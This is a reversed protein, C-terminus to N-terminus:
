PPTPAHSAPPPADKDGLEAFGTGRRHLRVESVNLIRRFRRRDLGRARRYAACFRRVDAPNILKQFSRFIQHFNRATVYDPVANAWMRANDLDLLVFTPAGATPEIVLLNASKLDHAGIGAAHLHALWRALATAFAARAPPTSAIRSAYLDLPVALSPTGTFLISETEGGNRSWAAALHPVVAAGRLALANALRFNRLADPTRLGSRRFTKVYFTGHPSQFRVVSSKGTTSVPFSSPADTWDLAETGFPADARCIWRTARGTSLPTTRCAERLARAETMTARVGDAMTGITFHKRIHSAAAEGMALRRAPDSILEGLRRTLTPIDACPALSGLEPSMIIERTGGADTAVVAVRASMAELVVNPLGEVGSTHMLIDAAPLLDRFDDRWGAFITRSAIGLQNALDQLAARQPGDGFLVLCARTGGCAGAFARLADDFRKEAALRGSSAVILTDSPINLSAHLDARRKPRDDTDLPRVGNHVTVIKGPLVWPKRIFVNRAGHNDVLVRDICQRYTWRDTPSDTLETDIPLKCGIAARPWALRLFRCQRFGKVIGIDPRFDRCIRNLGLLTWPALDFALRLPAFAFGRQDCVTPWRSERRGVILCEDGRRAFDGALNLMWNEMGGWNDAKIPNLFLWKM